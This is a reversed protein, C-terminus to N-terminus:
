WDDDHGNFDTWMLMLWWPAHVPISMLILITLIIMMFTMMLTVTFTIHCQTMATVLLTMLWWQILMLEVFHADTLVCYKPFIFLTTPVPISMLYPLWGDGDDGDDDVDDSDGHHWWDNGHSNLRQSTMMWWWFDTWMLMILWGPDTILMSVPISMLILIYWWSWWWRCRWNVIWVTMSMMLIFRFHWMVTVMMDGHHWWDDGHVLM